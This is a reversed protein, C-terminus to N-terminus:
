GDKLLSDLLDLDGLRKQVSNIAGNVDERHCQLLGDLMVFLPNRSDLALILVFM